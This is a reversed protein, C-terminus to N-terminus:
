VAAGVVVVCEVDVGIVVDLWDGALVLNRGDAPLLNLTTGLAALIFSFEGIQALGGAVTLAVNAPYRFSLVIIAAIAPTGIMVIALVALVHTPQRVLVMPQFLRGNQYFRPACDTIEIVGGSEDHVRTLLVATNTVYSQEYRAMGVLEISYLGRESGPAADDLLACFTADSDFRPFCGWVVTGVPDILVGIAGNGVLALDLTRKM